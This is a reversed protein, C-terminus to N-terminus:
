VWSKSSMHLCGVMEDQLSEHGVGIVNAPTQGNNKGFGIKQTGKKTNDIAEFALALSQM